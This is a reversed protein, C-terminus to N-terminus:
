DAVLVRLEALEWYLRFSSPEQDLRLFRTPPAECRAQLWTAAPTTAYLRLSAVPHWTCGLRQFTEGDLSTSLAFPTFIPTQHVRLLAEVREPRVTEGLDIAFHQPRGELLYARRYEPWTQIGRLWALGDDSERAPPGVLDGVNSWATGADGDFALAGQGPNAGPVALWGDRRIERLPREEARQGGDAAPEQPLQYVVDDGFTAVSELSAVDSLAPMAHAVIYRVGIERLANVAVPDPLRQLEQQLYLYLPPLYAGYGNVLPHWHITSYYLYSPDKLVNLPLEVVAGGDGRDRLWRYVPPIRDGVPLLEIGPARPRSEGLICGVLAAAILLRGRRQRAWGIVRAAGVGALVAIFFGALLSMRAPVRLADLGPLIAYLTAYPGAGLFTPGRAWEPGAGYRVYPGLSLSASWLATLAYAWRAGHVRWRGALAGFVALVGVVVILPGPFREMGLLWSPLVYHQLSLGYAVNELSGGYEGLAARVRLYQAFWPATAVAAMGFTIGLRWGAGWAVRPGAALLQIALFPVLCLVLYTGVYIGSLVQLCLFAAAALAPALRPRVITRHVFLFVFPIWQTTLLQLQFIEFSRPPSFAWAVGAVIGALASGSLLRVLFTLGVGSLVFSLLLALNHLLIPDTTFLTAPLVFLAEGFLHDSFFLSRPHPYFGNAEFVAAPEERLHRLNTALAWIHLFQDGRAFSGLPPGDSPLTAPPIYIARDLHLLLDRHIAATLV